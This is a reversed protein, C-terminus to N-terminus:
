YSLVLVEERLNQANMCNTEQLLVNQHTAPHPKRNFHSIHYCTFLCTGCVSARSPCVSAEDSPGSPLCVAYQSFVCSNQTLVGARVRPRDRTVEHGEGALAEGDTLNHDNGWIHTLAPSTVYQAWCEQCPIFRDKHTKWDKTIDAMPGPWRGHM